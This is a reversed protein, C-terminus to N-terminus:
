WHAKIDEGHLTLPMGKEEIKSLAHFYALSGRGGVLIKDKYAADDLDLYLLAWSGYLWKVEDRINEDATSFYIARAAIARAHQNISAEFELAERRENEIHEMVYNFLWVLGVVIVIWGISSALEDV